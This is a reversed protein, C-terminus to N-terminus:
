SHPTEPSFLSALIRPAALRWVLALILVLLVWFAWALLYLPLSLLTLLASLMLFPLSLLRTLLRALLGRRETAYRTNKARLTARARQARRGYLRADGDLTLAYVREFPGLAAIGNRWACDWGEIVRVGERARLAGQSTKSTSCHSWSRTFSRSLSLSLFLPLRM